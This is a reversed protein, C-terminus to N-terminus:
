TWAALVGGMILIAVLHYGSNIFHLRVDRDEFLGHIAEYTLMFGLWIWFGTQLGGSVTTAVAYDVIHARVYATLLWALFTLGFVLPMSRGSSKIEEETTGIAAMWPKGLLVPSYWLAGLAFAAVAAVLVALHNIDVEPM